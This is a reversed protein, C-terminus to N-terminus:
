VEYRGFGQQLDSSGEYLGIFHIGFAVCTVCGILSHSIMWTGSDM